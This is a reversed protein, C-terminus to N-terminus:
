FTFWKKIRLKIDRFWYKVEDFKNGKETNCNECTLQLNIMENKGGKSRPKIHDINFYIEKNTKKDITYLNFHYINNENSDSKELVFYFFLNNKHTSTKIKHKGIDIYKNKNKNKKLLKIVKEIEWYSDRIYLQTMKARNKVEKIKLNM